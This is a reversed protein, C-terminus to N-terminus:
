RLLSYYLMQLRYKIQYLRSFKSKHSTTSANSDHRRYFILNESILCTKGKKESILAIWMDHMTIHIPIPLIENLIEKRFAMCCGVFTNRILNNLYGTRTNYISFLNSHLFNGESDILEANHLVCDVNRLEGVVTRVKDKMWIDDQDSLFIYDGEARKLANEFNKAIGGKIDNVYLKIRPDNFSDILDKTGDTSQDDSIILEDNESLQCLISEIQQRLYKAGNYTALCVSIKMM